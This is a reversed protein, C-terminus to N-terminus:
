SSGAGMPPNQDLSNPHHFIRGLQLQYLSQHEKRCSNRRSHQIIDAHRQTPAEASFRPLRRIHQKRNCHAAAQKHQPHQHAVATHPDKHNQATQQTAPAVFTYATRPNKRDHAPPHTPAFHGKRFCFFKQFCSFLEKWFPPTPTCHIPITKSKPVRGLVIGTFPLLDSILAHHIARPTGTTSHASIIYATNPLAALTKSVGYTSTSYGVLEVM